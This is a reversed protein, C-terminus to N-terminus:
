ASLREKVKKIVDHVKWDTKVLYHAPENKVVHQMIEENANLNALFIVPV